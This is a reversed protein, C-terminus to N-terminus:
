PTDCSIPTAQLLAASAKTIVLQQHRHFIGTAVALQQLLLSGVASYMRGAVVSLRSPHVM